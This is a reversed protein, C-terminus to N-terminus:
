ADDRLREIRDKLRTSVPLKFADWLPLSNEIAGIARAVTEQDMLGLDHQAILNDLRFYNAALFSRYKEFDTPSLLQIAGLNMKPAGENSYTLIESQIRALDDSNSVTLMLEQLRNSREQLTQAKTATTQSRIQVSLYALTVFVAAAGVLEAVTGVAEWNM